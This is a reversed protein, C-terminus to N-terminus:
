NVESKLVGKKSEMCILSSAQKEGDELMVNVDDLEDIVNVDVDDHSVDGSPAAVMCSVGGHYPRKGSVEDKVVERNYRIVIIIYLCFFHITICIDTPGNTQRKAQRIILICVIPRNTV